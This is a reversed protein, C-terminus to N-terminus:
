SDARVPRHVATAPHRLTWQCNERGGHLKGTEFSSSVPSEIPSAPPPLFFVASTHPAPPKM